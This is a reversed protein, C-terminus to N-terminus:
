SMFGLQCQVTVQSCATTVPVGCIRRQQQALPSAESGVTDTGAHLDMGLRRAQVGFRNVRMPEPVAERM